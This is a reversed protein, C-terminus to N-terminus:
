SSTEVVGEPPVVVTTATETQILKQSEPANQLEVREIHSIVKTTFDYDDPVDFYDADSFFEGDKVQQWIGLKLVVGTIVGAIGAIV